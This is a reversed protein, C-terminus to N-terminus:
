KKGRRNRSKAAPGKLVVAETHERFTVTVYQQVRRGERNRVKAGWDLGTIVWRISDPTQLPGSLRVITPEGTKKTPDGAWKQLLRCGAEVSNDRGPWFDLGDFVLPLVYTFGSTGTWELAERQRPRAVSDWVGVGGTLTDAGVLSANLGSGIPRTPTISVFRQPLSM